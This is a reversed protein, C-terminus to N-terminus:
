TGDGQGASDTLHPARAGAPWGGLLPRQEGARRRRQDGDGHDERAGPAAAEDEETVVHLHGARDPVVRHPPEADPWRPGHGETGHDHPERVEEAGPHGLAQQEGRRQQQRTATDGHQQAAVASGGAADARQRSDPVGVDGLPEAQALGRREQRVPGQGHSTTAARADRRRTHSFADQHM